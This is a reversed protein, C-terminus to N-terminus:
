ETKRVEFPMTSPKFVEDTVVGSADGTVGDAFDIDADLAFGTAAVVL